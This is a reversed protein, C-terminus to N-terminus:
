PRRLMGKARALWAYVASSEVRELTQAPSEPSRAGPALRGLVRWARSARLDALRKAALADRSALWQSVRAPDHALAPLVDRLTRAFRAPDAPGTPPTELDILPEPIVRSPVGSQALMASLTWVPAQAALGACSGWTAPLADVRILLAGTNAAHYVGLLDRELGPWARVIGGRAERTFATILAVEPERAAIAAALSLLRSNITAGSRRVLAWTAGSRRLRELLDGPADADIEVPIM